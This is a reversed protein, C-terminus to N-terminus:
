GNSVEQTATMPVNSRRWKVPWDSEVLAQKAWHAAETDGVPVGAKHLNNNLWSGFRNAIEQPWDKWELAQQFAMDEQEYEPRPPMSARESDLWLTECEVLQCDPDRTWGPERSQRFTCGFAVLSEGLAREIDERKKRTEMTSDPDDKLLKILAKLLANVGEYNRFHRMVAESSMLRREGSQRWQPPLSAFLYNVGGRESNLQSINQPKTGGLKRAALGRYEAYLVPHEQRKYYAQRAEKNGEGFRAENIRAHVEHALSSSFMPQLLHFGANDTPEGSVCWYVQKAMVHSVPAAPPRVLAKFAEAWEQAVSEDTDLAALLSPNDEQLWDLLRKGDVELKLLKYVDLAAANGVVDEAFAEGLLHSGVETRQGLTEPPIHLSSGKADPHTAKLVHTVAQIQSVRRAADALWNRYDYKAALKEAAEGELGKLKADRREEVFESIAQYFAAVRHPQRFSNDM